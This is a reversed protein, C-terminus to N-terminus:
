LIIKNAVLVCMHAKEIVHDSKSFSSMYRLHNDYTEFM